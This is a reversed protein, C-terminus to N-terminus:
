SVDMINCQRVLISHRWCCQTTTSTAQDCNSELQCWCSQNYQLRNIVRMANCAQQVIPRTTGIAVIQTCFYCTAWSYSVFVCSASCWLLMNFCDCSSWLWVGETPSTMSNSSNIYGVHVLNLPKM